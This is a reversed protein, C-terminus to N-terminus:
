ACFMCGFYLCVLLMWVIYLGCVCSAGCVCCVRLMLWAVHACRAIVCLRSGYVFMCLVYVSRVCSMCVFHLLAYVSCVGFLCVVSACLMCVDYAFCVCLMCVINRCCGCLISVLYVCCAFLTCVVSVCCACLTCVVYVCCVYLTCVDRLQV